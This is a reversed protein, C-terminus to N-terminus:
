SKDSRVLCLNRFSPITVHDESVPVKIWPGHDIKLSAQKVFTYVKVNEINGEIGESRLLCLTTDKKGEYRTLELHPEIKTLPFVIGAQKLFERVQVQIPRSATRASEVGEVEIFLPPTNGAVRFRKMRGLYNRGIPSDFKLISKPHNTLIKEKLPAGHSDWEPHRGSLILRGNQELYENIQQIARDPLWPADPLVIARYRNLANTPAHALEYPTWVDVSVQTESLLKYLGYFDFADNKHGDPDGLWYPVIPNILAVEAVAERESLEAITDKANAVLTRVEEDKLGTYYNYDPTGYWCYWYVGDLGHLISAQTLQDLTEFGVYTGHTFDILDTAWLPKEYKRAVDITATSYHFDGKAGCLQLGLIDLSRERSLVVDISSTMMADDWNLPLAWAFGLYSAVPRKPDCQKITKAQYEIADALAEWEFEVFDVVAATTNGYKQPPTEFSIEVAPTGGIGKDSLRGQGKGSWVAHSWGKSSAKTFYEKIIEEPSGSLRRLTFDDFTVTGPAFGKLIPWLRVANPPAKDKWYLQRWGDKVEGKDECWCWSIIQDNADLWLGQIMVQGLPMGELKYLVDAEYEEGPKCPFAQDRPLFWGADDWSSAVQFSILHSTGDGSRFLPPAEVDDFSAYDTGWIKNLEQIAGYCQSLSKRFEALTLPNYDLTGPWFWEAGNLYAFARRDPDNKKVWKTVERAYAATERRYIPSWPSPWNMTTGNAQVIGEGKRCAYRGVWTSGGWLLSNDIIPAFFLDNEYCYRLNKEPWAFDVMRKDIDRMRWCFVNSLMTEAGGVAYDEFHPEHPHVVFGVPIPTDRRPRRTELVASPTREISPVEPALGDPTDTAGHDLTIAFIHLDPQFPLSISLLEDKESIALTQIFLRCTQQVKNGNALRTAFTAATAEGYAAPKCWDSFRLLMRETRHRFKLIIEGSASGNTAVGLFHIKAVDRAHASLVQKECILHKNIADNITQFPINGLLASPYPNTQISFYRSEPDFANGNGDLGPEGAKMGFASFEAYSTIDVPTFSLPTSAALICCALACASIM